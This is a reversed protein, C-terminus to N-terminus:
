FVATMQSFCILSVQQVILEFKHFENKKCSFPTALNICQNKCYTHYTYHVLTRENKKKRKM